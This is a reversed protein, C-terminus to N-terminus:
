KLFIVGDNLLTKILWSTQENKVNIVVEKKSTLAKALKLSVPYEKGNVYLYTTSKLTIFHIKYFLNPEIILENTPLPDVSCAMKEVEQTTTFKGFWRAFTEDDENLQKIMWQKLQKVQEFEIEGANSQLPLGADTYRKHINRPQFHEMYDIMLNHYNPAKFGISWTMCDDSQSIGHHAYRPPMYLIDGVNCPHTQDAKFNKLLRLETNKIVDNSNAPDRATHEIQWQRLGSTQILFTDYDDIHPGVSGGKPAYSIMLDDFRWDPILRFPQVYGMFDPLHKEIDTILLSWTKGELSAFTQETFPGQQVDWETASHQTIIRSPMDADLALGALEDPTIPNDFGQWANPMFLPKQQWYNQLFSKKTVSQPFNIEYM